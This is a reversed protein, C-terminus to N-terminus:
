YRRGLCEPRKKFPRKSTCNLVIWQDMNREQVLACFQGGPAFQTLYESARGNERLLEFEWAM